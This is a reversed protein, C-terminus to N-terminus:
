TSTVSESRAVHDLFELADRPMELLQDVDVAHERDFFHGVFGLGGQHHAPVLNIGVGGFCFMYAEMSASASLSSRQTLFCM